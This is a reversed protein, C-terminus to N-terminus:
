QQYAGAPHRDSDDVNSEVDDDGDEDGDDEGYSPQEAVGDEDEEDSM